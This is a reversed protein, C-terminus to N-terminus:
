HHKKNNEHAPQMIVAKASQPDYQVPYYTPDWIKMDVQREWDGDEPIETALGEEEAVKCLSIAIERSVNRVNNLRPFVKGVKSDEPDVCRALAKASEYFMRDTIMTPRCAVTALGVGPFIFMNNCQSPFMTHNERIVPDFPSGSAYICSGNTWEYAQEATCESKHTPNSLAFVIPRETHKKMERIATETFTGGVGTLGLIITPKVESVVEELRMNKDTDKRAFPKQFSTLNRDSTLLGDADLLWFKSRAEEESIGSMVMGNVLTNCVGVGASGAGMCVIRHNVFEEPGQGLAKLAGYMGALAVAGTGQIDDNFTCFDNRYRSLFPEAYETKFDEFQVMAKPWKLKVAAMFEDMLDFYEEGELRRQRTGMYTPDNLLEENNTGVDILVPLCKLPSLGGAAVYLSLKGIPISMGNAGLDGLGLIRSGDTVVIVDVDDYNSNGLITNIEGTDEKTVYLGRPKRYLMSANQCAYGVTPTYIIPAMEELNDSLLRYFCCENRDQLGILFLHKAVVNEMRGIAKDRDSTQGARHYAAYIRKCQEEISFVVPPLLGRIGLRDRERESFATGKNIRADNLIEIGYKQVKVPCHKLYEDVPKLSYFAVPPLIKPVLGSQPQGLRGGFLIGQQSQRGVVGPLQRLLASSLM